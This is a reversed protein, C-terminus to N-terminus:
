SLADSVAKASPYHTDDPNTLDTVLNATTQYVSLDPKNDLDTYNNSL